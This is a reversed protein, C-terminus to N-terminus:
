SRMRPSLVTAELRANGPVFVSGSFLGGLGKVDDDEEGVSGRGRSAPTRQCPREGVDRQVRHLGESFGIRSLAEHDVWIEPNVRGAPELLKLFRGEPRAPTRTDTRQFSFLSLTLTKEKTKRTASLAALYAVM